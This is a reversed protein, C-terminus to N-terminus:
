QKTLKKFEPGYKETLEAIIIHSLKTLKSSELDVTALSVIIEEQTAGDRNSTDANLTRGILETSYEGIMKEILKYVGPMAILVVNSREDEIGLQAGLQDTFEDFLSM